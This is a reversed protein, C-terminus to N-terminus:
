HGFKILGVQRKCNYTKGAFQFVLNKRDLSKIDVEEVKYQHRDTAVQQLELYYIYLKGNLLKWETFSKDGANITSMTGQHEFRFGRHQKMDFFWRGSMESTNISIVVKNTKNEPFISLTDGVTLSGKIYGEQKADCYNYTKKENTSLNTLILNDGEVGELRALFAEDPIEDLEEVM